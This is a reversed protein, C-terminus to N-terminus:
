RLINLQRNLFIMLAIKTINKGDLFIVITNNKNMKLNYKNEISSFYNEWKKNNM